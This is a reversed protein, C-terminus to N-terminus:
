RRARWGPTEHPTPEPEAASGAPKGAGRARWDDTESQPEAAPEPEQTAAEDAAAPPAAIAKPSGPQEEAEEAAEAVAEEASLRLVEDEATAIKPEETAVPEEALNPVEPPSEEDAPEARVLPPFPKPAAGTPLIGNSRALFDNQPASGNPVPGAYDLPDPCMTCGAVVLAVCAACALFPRRPAAAAEPMM